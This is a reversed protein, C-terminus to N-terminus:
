DNTNFSVRFMLEAGGIRGRRRRLTVGPGPLTKFAIDPRVLSGAPGAPKRGVLAQRCVDGRELM